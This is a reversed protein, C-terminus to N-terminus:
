IGLSGNCLDCSECSQTKMACPAATVVAPRSVEEAISGGDGSSAKRRPMPWTSLVPRDGAKSPTAVLEDVADGATGDFQKDTRKEGQARAGVVDAKRPVIHDLLDQWHARWTGRAGDLEEWRRVVAVALDDESM